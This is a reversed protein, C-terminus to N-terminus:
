AVQIGPTLCPFFLYLSLIEKRQKCWLYFHYRRKVHFNRESADQDLIRTTELLYDIISAGYIQSNNDFQIEIWKGFRSSNNNRSTKANGFAELIPNTNLIKATEDM